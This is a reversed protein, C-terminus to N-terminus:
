NKPRFKVQFKRLKPFILLGPPSFIVSIEFIQNFNKTPRGAVLHPFKSGYTINFIQSTVGYLCCGSCQAPLCIQSWQPAHFWFQKVPLLALYRTSWGSSSLKRKIGVKLYRDIRKLLFFFSLFHKFLDCFSHNWTREIRCRQIYGVSTFTCSIFQDTLFLSLTM